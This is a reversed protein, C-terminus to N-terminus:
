ATDEATTTEAELRAFDAQIVELLGVVGGASDGMGTYEEDFTPPADVEPQGTQILRTRGDYGIKMDEALKTIDAKLQDIQAHLTNVEETKAERTHKNTGMETDCWAKHDAEENAENLLRTIMDDIM